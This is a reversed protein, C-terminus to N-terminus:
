STLQVSGEGETLSGDVLYLFRIFATALVIFMHRDYLLVRSDDILKSSWKSVISSDDNAIMKHKYYLGSIKLAFPNLMGMLNLAIV